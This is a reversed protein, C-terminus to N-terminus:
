HTSRTTAGVRRVRVWRAAFFAGSLFLPLAAPVPVHSVVLDVRVTGPAVVGNMDIFISDVGFSVGSTIGTVLFNTIFGPPGVWDLDELLVGNFSPSGFNGEHVYTISEAAIDITEDPLMGFPFCGTCEIGPDTVVFGFPGDVVDSMSAGFIFSMTINDGALTASASSVYCSLLVIALGDQFQKLPNQRMSDIGWNNKNETGQRYRRM